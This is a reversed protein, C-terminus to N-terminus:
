YRMVHRKLKVGSAIESIHISIELSIVIECKKLLYVTM